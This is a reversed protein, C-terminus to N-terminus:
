VKSLEKSREAARRVGAKIIAKLGKEEFIKIAAETTGGPSTVQRRLEAPTETRSKLLLGAGFLTQQVFERALGEDMGLDVAAEAMSEALYFAYAPGSGSVATVADMLEEPVTVAQGVAQLIKKVRAEHTSTAFSGRSLASMGSKLLAPTNSMVRIVPIGLGLEGELRKISVGAAISVVCLPKKKDVSVVSRMVSLVDSMQQPKVCIWVLEAERVVAPIDKLFKVGIKKVARATESSRDNIVLDRAKLVKASLAGEVLASGMRGYGIFGVKM